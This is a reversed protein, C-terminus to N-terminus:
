PRLSTLLQTHRLCISKPSQPNTLSSPFNLSGHLKSLRIQELRKPSGGRVLTTGHIPKFPDGWQCLEIRFVESTIKGSGYDFQIGDFPLPAKGGNFRTGILTQLLSRELVLDYNLTIIAPMERSSMRHEILSAWFERYVDAGSTNIQVDRANTPVGEHRVDCRIEIVSAIAEDLKRLWTKANRDGALANFSLISLVDEINRDDFNARGHYIDLQKLVDVADRLIQLRDTGISTPETRRGAALYVLSEIFNGLLPIGADRSFGAGFLFVNDTM